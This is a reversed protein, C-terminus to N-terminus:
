LFLKIAEKVKFWLSRVKWFKSTKMAEIESNALELKAKLIVSEEQLNTIKELYSSEQNTQYHNLKELKIKEKRLEQWLLTSINNKVDKQTQTGITDLCLHAIEEAMKKWSFKKSQELGAEILKHRIKPIQVQELAQIMELVDYEDVYIAADGSVETLSSNRCTIVPCGCAMAEVIPLGFGEYLSPYILAIAGSYATVYRFRTYDFYCFFPSYLLALM